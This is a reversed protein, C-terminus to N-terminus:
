RMPNTPIPLIRPQPHTGANNMGLETAFSIEIFKRSIGHKLATPVGDKCNGLAFFRDYLMQAQPVNLRKKRGVLSNPHPPVTLTDLDDEREEGGVQEHVDVITLPHLNELSGAYKM